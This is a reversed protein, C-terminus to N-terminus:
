FRDYGADLDEQTGCGGEVLHVSLKAITPFEWALSPSLSRGLLYELRGSLQVALLSDLGYDTFARDRHIEAAAVGANTALWDIIWAELEDANMTRDSQM